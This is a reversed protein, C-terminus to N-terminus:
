ASIARFEHGPLITIDAIDNGARFEGYHKMSSELARTTTTGIAVIRRRDIRAANLSNTAQESISFREPSVSHEAINDVRIPEFTGYGV